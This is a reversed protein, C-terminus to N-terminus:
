YSVKALQTQPLHQFDGTWTNYNMARVSLGPFQMCHTKSAPVPL